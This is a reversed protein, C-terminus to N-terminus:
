SVCMINDEPKNDVQQLQVENNSYFAQLNHTSSRRALLNNCNFLIHTHMTLKAKTTSVAAATDQKGPFVGKKM